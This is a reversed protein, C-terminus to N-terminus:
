LPFGSPPSLWDSPNLEPALWTTTRVAFLIAVGVLLVWWGYADIWRCVRFRMRAGVAEAVANIAFVLAWPALLVVLPNFRLAEVPDLRAICAMARTLGCTPCDLGLFRHWPCELPSWDSFRPVYAVALVYGACGIAILLNLRKKAASPPPPEALM